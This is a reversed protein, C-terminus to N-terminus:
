AEQGSDAHASCRVGHASKGYGGAGHAESEHAFPGTGQIGAPKFRGRGKRGTDVQAGTQVLVAHADRGPAAEAHGRADAHLGALGTKRAEEIGAAAEARTLAQGHGLAHPDDVGVIRALDEDHQEVGRALLADEPTPLAHGLKNELGKDARDPLLHLAEGGRLATRAAESM